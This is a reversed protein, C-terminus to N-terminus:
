SREAMKLMILTSLKNTVKGAPTLSKSYRGKLKSSESKKKLLLQKSSVGHLSNHLSMTDIFINESKLEYEQKVRTRDFAVNHGILIKKNPGFDILDNKRLSSDSPITDSFFHPSIWTYWSSESVAATM